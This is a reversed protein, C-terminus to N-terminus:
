QQGALIKKKELSIVCFCVLPLYYLLFLLRLLSLQKTGMPCRDLWWSESLAHTYGEGTLLPKIVCGVFGCKKKKKGALIGGAKRKRKEEDSLCSPFLFSPFQYLRRTKNNNKTSFRPLEATQQTKGGRERWEWFPRADKTHETASSVGDPNTATLAQRRSM